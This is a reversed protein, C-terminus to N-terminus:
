GAERQKEAILSDMAVNIRDIIQPTARMTGDEIYSLTRARMSARTATENRGLNNDERWRKIQTHGTVAGHGDRAEVRGHTGGM